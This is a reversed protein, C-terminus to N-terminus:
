SNLTRVKDLFRGVHSFVEESIEGRVIGHINFSVAHSEKVSTRVKKMIIDLSERFIVPDKDAQTAYVPVTIRYLGKSVVSMVKRVQVLGHIPNKLYNIEPNDPHHNLLLPVIKLGVARTIRQVAYIFHINRLAWHRMHIPASISVVACFDSPHRVANLLALGAGMSFGAAIRKPACEKVIEFGRRSADYWDTWSRTMLDEPTTGHGALRPVYVTFGKGHLFEALLRVEEPQALYGHMLLIAYESNQVELFIPCGLKRPKSEGEIFSATYDRDYLSLEEDILIRCRETM